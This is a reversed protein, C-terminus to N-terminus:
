KSHTPTSVSILLVIHSGATVPVSHERSMALGGWGSLSVFPFFFGELELQPCKLFLIEEEIYTNQHRLTGICNCFPACHSCWAHRSLWGQLVQEPLTEMASLKSRFKSLFESKCVSIEETSIGARQETYIVTNHHRDLFNEMSFSLSPFHICRRDPVAASLM